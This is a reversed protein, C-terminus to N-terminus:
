LKRGRLWTRFHERNFEHRAYGERELSFLMTTTAGLGASSSVGLLDCALQHVENTTQPKDTLVAKIADLVSMSQRVWLNHKRVWRRDTSYEAAVAYLAGNLNYKESYWNMYDLVRSKREAENDARSYDAVEFAGRRVRFHTRHSWTTIPTGMKYETLDTIENGELDHTAHVVALM